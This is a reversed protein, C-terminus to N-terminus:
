EVSAKVPNELTQMLDNVIADRDFNEWITIQRPNNEREIWQGDEYIPCPHTRSEAWGPNKIIALAALDFLARHKEEDHYDIHEFLSVAYDGFTAFQGGHRGTIPESIKPGKGPMESNIFNQTVKVADTGSRDGYRVTVMEFPVKTGLVYNMAPVDSDQNYEGPQPYNSGLWVVRVKESIDPAKKLALAINTLKGVPVLILDESTRAESIIFDVAEHGDFTPNELDGEIDEFNANAGTLLPIDSGAQCLKFIREAEDYHNQVEGGSPTANVTVGRAIFDDGNLLLYALAHQDDLENNTDTDFIIRHKGPLNNVPESQQDDSSQNDACGVLTLGLSLLLIAKTTM